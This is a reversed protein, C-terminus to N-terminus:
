RNTFIFNASSGFSGNSNFQIETNNGAVSAGASGEADPLFVEMYRDTEFGSDLSNSGTYYLRLKNAGNVTIASASYFFSSFNQDMENYTLASAKEVRLTVGSNSNVLSM